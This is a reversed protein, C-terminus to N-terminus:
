VDKQQDDIKSILPILLEHITLPPLGMTATAERQEDSIARQATSWGDIYQISM